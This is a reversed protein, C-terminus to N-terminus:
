AALMASNRRRYATFGLGAFGLIMMAWTSPEPVASVPGFGPQENRPASITGAYSGTITENTSDFTATGTAQGTDGPLLGGTIVLNVSATRTITDGKGSFTGTLEGAAFTWDFTGNSLTFTPPTINVTGSETGTFPGFTVDNGSGTFTETFTPPSGGSGTGSFTGSILITNAHALNGSGLALLIPATAFFAAYKRRVRWSRRILHRM